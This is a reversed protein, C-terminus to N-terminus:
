QNPNEHPAIRHPTRVYLDSKGPGADKGASTWDPLSLSTLPVTISMVCVEVEEEVVEDVDADGYVSVMSEVLGSGSLRVASITM